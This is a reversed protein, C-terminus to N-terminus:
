HSYVLLPNPSLCGCIVSRTSFMNCVFPAPVSQEFATWGHMTCANSLIIALKQGFCLKSFAFQPACACQPGSCIRVRGRSSPRKPAGSRVSLDIPGFQQFTLMGLTTCADKDLHSTTNLLLEFRGDVVCGQKGLSRRQPRPPAGAPRQAWVAPLDAHRAHHVGRRPLM